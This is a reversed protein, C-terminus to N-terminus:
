HCSLCIVFSIRYSLLMTMVTTMM